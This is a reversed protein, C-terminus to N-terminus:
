DTQFYPFNTRRIIYACYKLLVLDVFPSSYCVTEAENPQILFNLDSVVSVSTPYQETSVFPVVDM